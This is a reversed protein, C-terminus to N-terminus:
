SSKKSRMKNLKGIIKNKEFANLKDVFLEGNLHDIEHQAMIAALEVVHITHQAGTIDQYILDFEAHRETWAWVDPISLCAEKHRVTGIPNSIVPNAVFEPFGPLVSVFFSQLLGVQPAALAYGHFNQCDLLMEKVIVALSDDFMTIPFCKKQLIPNPYTILNM